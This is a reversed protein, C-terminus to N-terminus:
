KQIPIVQTELGFGAKLLQACDGEGEKGALLGFMLKADRDTNDLLMSGM